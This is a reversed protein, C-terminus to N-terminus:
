AGSVWMLKSGSAGGNGGYLGEGADQPSAASSSAEGDGKVTNEANGGAPSISVTAADTPTGEDGDKGGTTTGAAAGVALGTSLGKARTVATGDRAGGVAGM